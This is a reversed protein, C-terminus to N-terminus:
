NQDKRPPWSLYGGWGQGPASRWASNMTEVTKLILCSLKSNHSQQESLPITLKNVWQPKMEENSNPSLLLQMESILIILAKHPSGPEINVDAKTLICMHSFIKYKDRQTQNIECLRIFSILSPLFPFWIVPVLIFDSYLWSSQNDLVVLLTTWILRVYLNHFVPLSTDHSWDWLLRPLPM